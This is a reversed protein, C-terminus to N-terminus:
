EALVTVEFTKWDISDDLYNKIYESIESTKVLLNSIKFVYGM